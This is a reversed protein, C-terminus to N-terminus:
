LSGPSMYAEFIKKVESVEYGTEETIERKIAEAPHEEDLKGACAEILMGNPNKNLFTSLRFQKTLIVTRQQKNYLLVTAANGVDFSERVQTEKSGDNKTYEYTVKSLTFYDDSLIETNTINAKQPM